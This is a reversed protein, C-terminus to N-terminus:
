VSEMLNENETSVKKVFFISEQRGFTQFFSTPCSLVNNVVYHQRNFSLSLCITCCLSLFLCVSLYVSLNVSLQVFGLLSCIFLSISTRLPLSNSLCVSPSLNIYLFVSIFYPFYYTISYLLCSLSIISLYLSIPFLCFSFFSVYLSWLLSVFVFISSNESNIVM